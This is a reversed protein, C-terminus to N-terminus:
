IHNNVISVALGFEYRNGFWGSGIAHV